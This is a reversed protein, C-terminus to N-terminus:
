TLARNRILLCALSRSPFRLAVHNIITFFGIKSSADRIEEAVAKRQEIDESLMRSVDILPIKDTVQSESSAYAFSQGNVLRVNHLAQVQATVSAM